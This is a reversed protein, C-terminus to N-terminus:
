GARRFAGGCLSACLEEAWVATGGVRAVADPQAAAPLLSFDMGAAGLLGVRTPRGRLIARVGAIRRADAEVSGESELIVIEPQLTALLAGFEMESAAVAPGAGSVPAAFAAELAGMLERSRVYLLSSLSGGAPEGPLPMGYRRMFQMLNEHPIRMDGGPTRYFRIEGKGLCRKLTSVGLGCLKAAQGTTYSRPTDAGM